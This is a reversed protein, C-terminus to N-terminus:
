SCVSLSWAISWHRTRWPTLSSRGCNSESVQNEIYETVRLCQLKGKELLSFFLHSNFAQNPCSLLSSKTSVSFVGCAVWPLCISCLCVAGFSDKYFGFVDKDQYLFFPFVLVPICSFLLFHNFIFCLSPRSVSTIQHQELYLCVSSIFSWQVCSRITHSITIILINM